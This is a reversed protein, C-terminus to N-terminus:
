KLRLTVDGLLSGNVIMDLQDIGIEVKAKRVAEGLTDGAMLHGVVKTIMLQNGNFSSLHTAGYVAVAGYGGAVMLQHAMSNTLPSDAYTTYCALPLALMPKGENGLIGIDSEKLLGYYSWLAPASHGSYSVVSPGQSLKDMMVERASAVAEGVNNNHAKFYSDLYIRTIENSVWYSEFQLAIDEMQQDFHHGGDYRDAMFLATHAKTQGSLKWDLTKNIVAELGELTRVPWRGIAMQPLGSEDSVYPTDSPTWSSLVSTSGYMSPIFSIAGYGLYNHYDYNSAGVLQVHTVGVTQAEKLYATIAEPTQMGYGYVRYIDEVNVVQVRWGEGSRQSVYHDLMEGMFLPHSIILYNGQPKIEDESVQDKISVSPVMSALPIGDDYRIVTKDYVIVNLRVEEQGEVSMTIANSGVNLMSADATFSVPIARVGETQVDAVETGNLSVTIHHSVDSIAALYVTIEYTTDAVESLEFTPTM